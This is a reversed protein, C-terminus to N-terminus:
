CFKSLFLLSNETCSSLFPLLFHAASLFLLHSFHFICAGFYHFTLSTSSIELGPGIPDKEVSLSSSMPCGVWRREAKMNHNWQSHFSPPVLLTQWHTNLSDNSYTLLPSLLFSYILKLLSFYSFAENKQM